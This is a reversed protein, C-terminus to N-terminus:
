DALEDAGFGIKRELLGDRGRTMVADIRGAEISAGHEGVFFIWGGADDPVEIILADAALIADELAGVFHRLIGRAEADDTFAIQACIAEGSTFGRSANLGTRVGRNADRDDVLIGDAIIMKGGVGCVAKKGGAGVSAVGDWGGCEDRVFTKGFFEAGSICLMELGGVRMPWEDRHEDKSLGGDTSYKNM